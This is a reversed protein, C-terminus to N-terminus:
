GKVAGAFLGRVCYRNLLAFLLLPPLIALISGASILDDQDPQHANRNAVTM